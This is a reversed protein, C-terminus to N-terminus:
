RPPVPSSRGLLPAVETAYRRLTTDAPFDHCWPIFARCGADTLAHMKRAVQEPTGVLSRASWAEFSDGQLAAGQWGARLEADSDRIFMEGGWTLEIEDPDRGINECHERLTAATRAFEAAEGGWNARDAHRAVVALTRRAGSGAVLVPPRPRQLPKPDCRAGRVTFHEGVHDVVEDRWLATVVEIYEALREIRIRAAPFDYGYALAEGEYWGAGIGWELRGASIVDVCAAMKALLTPPRLVACGALQGLRVITTAQALASLTTWCEFVADPRPVSPVTMVHDSVWISDLGLEEAGLALDLVANWQADAPGVSALEGRWGLPVMVGLEVTSDM